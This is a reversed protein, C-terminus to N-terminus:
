ALLSLDFSLGVFPFWSRPLIPPSTREKHLEVYINKSTFSFSSPTHSLKEIYKFCKSYVKTLKVANPSSNDRLGAWCPCFLALRAGCFYKALYFCKFSPDNFTALTSSLRLAQAKVEFDIIGLGGEKVPCHLSKRAVPEIKSGWLFSWILKNYKKFVWHLVPLICAVYLLKSNRELESREVSRLNNQM